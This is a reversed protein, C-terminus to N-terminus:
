VIKFYIKSYYTFTNNFVIPCKYLKTVMLTVLDKLETPQINGVNKKM